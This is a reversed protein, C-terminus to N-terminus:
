QICFLFWLIFHNKRFTGFSYLNQFFIRRFIRWRMRAAFRSVGNWWAADNRDSRIGWTFLWIWFILFKTVFWWSRPIFDIKKKQTPNTYYLMKSDYWFSCKVDSKFSFDLRWIESEADFPLLSSDQFSRLLYSKDTYFKLIFFLSKKFPRFWVFRRIHIFIMFRFERHLLSFKTWNRFKGQVQSIIVFLHKNFEINRSLHINWESYDRSEWAFFQIKVFIELLSGAPVKGAIKLEIWNQKKTREFLAFLENKRKIKPM